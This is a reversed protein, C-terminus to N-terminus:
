RGSIEPLPHAVHQANRFVAAEVNISHNFPVPPHHVARFPVIEVCRVRIELWEDKVFVKRGSVIALPAAEGEEVPERFAVGAKDDGAVLYTHILVAGDAVPRSWDELRLDLACLALLDPSARFLHSSDKRLRQLSATM